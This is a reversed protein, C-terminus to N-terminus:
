YGGVEKNTPLERGLGDVAVWKTPDIEASAAMGILQSLILALVIAFLVKRKLVSESRIMQYAFM